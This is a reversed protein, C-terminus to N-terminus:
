VVTPSILFHVLFVLFNNRCHCQPSIQLLSGMLKVSLHPLDFSALPLAPSKYLIELWFMVISQAQSLLWLMNILGWHARPAVSLMSSDATIYVWSGCKVKLRLEGRWFLRMGEFYLIQNIERPHSNCVQKSCVCLTRFSAFQFFLYCGGKHKRDTFASFSCLLCAFCLNWDM